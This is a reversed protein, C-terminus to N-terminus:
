DLGSIFVFIADIDPNELVGAQIMATSGKGGEEAPQFIFKIKGQFQDRMQQLLYATLLLSACHGDHGCALM